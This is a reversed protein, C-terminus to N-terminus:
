SVVAVLTVVGLIVAAIISGLGPWIVAAMCWGVWLAMGWAAHGKSMGTAKDKDTM